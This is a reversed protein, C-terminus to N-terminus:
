RKDLSDSDPTGSPGGTWMWVARTALGIIQCTWRAIPWFAATILSRATM